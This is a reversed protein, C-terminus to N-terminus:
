ADTPALALVYEALALREAVTANVEDWCSPTDPANWVVVLIKGKRHVQARDLSANKAWIERLRGESIKMDPPLGRNGENEVCHGALVLLRRPMLASVVRSLGTHFLIRAWLSRLSLKLKHKM